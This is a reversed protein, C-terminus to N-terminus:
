LRNLHGSCSRMKTWCNWSRVALFDSEIWVAFRLLHKGLAWFELPQLLATIRSTEAVSLDRFQGLLSPSCSCYLVRKEIVIHIRRTGVSFLVKREPWHYWCLYSLRSTCPSFVGQHFILPLSFFHPYFITSANSYILHQSFVWRVKEANKGFIFLSYLRRILSLLCGSVVEQFIQSRVAM